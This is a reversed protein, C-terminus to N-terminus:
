PRHSSAGRSQRLLYDDGAESDLLWIVATQSNAKSFTPNGVAKDYVYRRQIAVKCALERM